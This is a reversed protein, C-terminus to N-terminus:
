QLVFIHFFKVDSNNYRDKMLKIFKKASHDRKVQVNEIDWAIVVAKGSPKSDVAKYEELILNIENKM